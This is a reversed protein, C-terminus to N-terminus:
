IHTHDIHLTDEIAQFDRQFLLLLLLIVGERFFQGSIGILVCIYALSIKQHSGATVLYPLIITQYLSFLASM